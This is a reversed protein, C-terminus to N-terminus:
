VCIQMCDHVIRTEGIGTRRNRRTSHGAASLANRFGWIGQQAAIPVIARRRLVTGLPEPSPERIVAQRIQERGSIPLIAGLASWRSRENEAQSEDSEVAFHHALAESAWEQRACWTTAARSAGRCSKRRSSSRCFRPASRYAPRCSLRLSLAADMGYPTNSNGSKLFIGATKDQVPARKVIARSHRAADGRFQFLYISKDVICPSPSTIIDPHFRKPIHTRNATSPSRRRM